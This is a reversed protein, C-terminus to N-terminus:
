GSNYLVSIVITNMDVLVEHVKMARTLFAAAGVDADSAVVAPFFEEVNALDVATVM